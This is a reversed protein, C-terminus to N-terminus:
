NNNLQIDGILYTVAKGSILVRDNVLECKLTGGRPSLQLASHTTKGLKSSWYPTLTTHASGTVPDEDIGSQPAFFRSVFDVNNGPATIVIGRVRLKAINHLNPVFGRIDAENDFVFMYDTKGKWAERPTTSFCARMDDDLAVPQIADAPFNLTLLGNGRSVTLIGSRSDFSVTDGGIGIHNFLVHAAALTAHGCLDVEVAPTFWRIRYNDHERVVFATEAINNEFAIQQMLKEEPWSDLVCVGAPNGGFLKNTFADVVYLKM